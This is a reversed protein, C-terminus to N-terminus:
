IPGRPASLYANLEDLRVMHYFAKELDLWKRLPLIDHLKPWDPVFCFYVFITEIAQM